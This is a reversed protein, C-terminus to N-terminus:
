SNVVSMRAVAEPRVLAANASMTALVQFANKQPIFDIRVKLDQGIGLVGARKPYFFCRTDSGNTGAPLLNSRRLVFGQVYNIMGSKLIQESVFDRSTLKNDAMIDGYAYSSIAAYRDEDPVEALNLFQQASVLATANLSTATLETTTTTNLANIIYTDLKRNIAAVLNDTTDKRLDANVRFQDQDRFYAWAEVDKLTVTIEDRANERAEFDSYRPRDDVAEISESTPVSFKDPVGTINRFTDRLKSTSQQFATAVEREYKTVFWNPITSSM